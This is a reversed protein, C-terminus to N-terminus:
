GKRLNFVRLFSLMTAITYTAIAGDREFQEPTMARIMQKADEAEQIFPKLRENAESALHQPVSAKLQSIVDDIAAIHDEKTRLPMQKADTM